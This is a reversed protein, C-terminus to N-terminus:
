LRFGKSLESGMRRPLPASDVKGGPAYKALSISEADADAMSAMRTRVPGRCVDLAVYQDLAPAPLRM